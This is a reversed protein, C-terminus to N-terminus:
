PPAAAVADSVGGIAAALALRPSRDKLRAATFLATLLDGTGNPATRARPHTALLARKADVYVVGIDDGAPVSSVLVPGILARAANITSEVGDVPVGALRALEWVNPAILDARPVLDAAIAAAVDERVYLGKGTDGMVPDVVMLAKPSAVRMADLTRAAIAVQDVSAFYGCIVADLRGFVGHADIAQLMAAMTEAEVPKGGPAGWGPHRGFLVTPVLIPEMGLRSLALTQM